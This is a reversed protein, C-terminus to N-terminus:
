GSSQSILFFRPNADLDKNSTIRGTIVFPVCEDLSTETAFSSSQLFVGRRPQPPSTARLSPPRAAVSPHHSDSRDREQNPKAAVTRVVGATAQPRPKGEK